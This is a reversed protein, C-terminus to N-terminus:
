PRAEDQDDWTTVIVNGFPSVLQTGSEIAQRAEQPSMAIGSRARVDPRLQEVLVGLFVSPLEGYVYKRIRFQMGPHQLFWQRDLESVVKVITMSVTCAGQMM